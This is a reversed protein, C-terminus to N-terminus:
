FRWTAYLALHLIFGIDNNDSKSDKKPRRRLLAFLAKQSRRIHVDTQKPREQQILDSRVSRIQTLNTM